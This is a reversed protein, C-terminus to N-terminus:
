QMSRVRYGGKRALGSIGKSNGPDPSANEVHGNRGSEESVLKHQQLADKALNNKFPM